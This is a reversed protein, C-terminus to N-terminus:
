HPDLDLCGWQCAKAESDLHFMVHRSFCLHFISWGMMVVVVVLMVSGDGWIGLTTGEGFEDRVRVIGDEAKFSVGNHLDLGKFNHLRWLWWRGQSQHCLWLQQCMQMPTPSSMRLKSLSPTPDRDLFALSREEWAARTSLSLSWTVIVTFRLELM